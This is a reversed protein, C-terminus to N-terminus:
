NCDHIFITGQYHKDEVTTKLYKVTKIKAKLIITENTKKCYLNAMRTFNSEKYFLKIMRTWEENGLDFQNKKLKKFDMLQSLDENHKYSHFFPRQMQKLTDARFINKFYYFLNTFNRSELTDILEENAKEVRYVKVNLGRVGNLYKSGQFVGM